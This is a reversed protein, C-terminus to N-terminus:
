RQWGWGRRRLANRRGQARWASDPGGNPTPAAPSDGTPRRRGRSLLAAAVLAIEENALEDQQDFRFHKELFATDLTGAIFHVNDMVQLHFPINTAVGVIKFERLARRMRQIAEQRNRGWTCLKAVLPDYHWSIERGDYIATDVRVGPGGPESLFSVKGVSPLFENFPDEAAIRCEIAWGRLKIDKQRYPLPEDGAVLIQDAVLDVGTVLETVPHEV